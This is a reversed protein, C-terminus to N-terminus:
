LLCCQTTSVKLVNDCNYNSIGSNKSYFGPYQCGLFTTEIEHRWYALSLFLVLLSLDIWHVVSLIFSGVSVVWGVWGTKSAVIHSTCTKLALPIFLEATKTLPPRTLQWLQVIEQQSATTGRAPLLAELKGRKEAHSELAFKLEKLLGIALHITVHYRTRGPHNCFHIHFFNM